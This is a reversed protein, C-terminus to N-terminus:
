GARAAEKGVQYRQPPGAKDSSSPLGSSGKGGHVITVTQLTAPSTAQTPSHWPLPRHADAANSSVSRALRIWSCTPSSHTM